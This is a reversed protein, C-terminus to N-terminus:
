ARDAMVNALEVRTHVNLKRFTNSLHYEVTKRSLFVAAAIEPNSKGSAALTAIALEQPTLEAPPTDPSAIRVGTARLENAARGQWLTAGATAFSDHAAQLLPRAERRRGSRRLREGYFLRTRALDLLYPSAELLEISRTFPEEYREGAALAGSSRLCAAMMWVSGFADAIPAFRDLLQQAADPDGTLAYAHVLDPVFAVACPDRVDSRLWREAVPELHAVAAAPEGHGLALLALMWHAVAEIAFDGATRAATAARLGASMAADHSGRWAYVGALAAYGLESKPEELLEGLRIAEAAAEEARALRGCRLELHAACNRNWIIRHYNGDARAQHLTADLSNRLEEFRELAMFDFAGMTPLDPHTSAALCRTAEERDGAIVHGFAAAGWARSGWDPGADPAHRELRRAIEVAGAADFANARRSLLIVLARVLRVDDVHELREAEHLVTLDLDADGTWERTRSLELLLDFRLLEDEALPLAEEILARARTANVGQLEARAAAFLRRARDARQPSLHAAAALARAAAALGGRALARDATEELLEALEEDPGDAAAALHWARRDLNADDDLVRALDEHARIREAAPANAYVLARLVPHRFLVSGQQVRVLGAEEAEQLAATTGRLESARRVTSADPEAAALLLERQVDPGVSALRHGFARELRQHGNTARPLEDALELPLELLALPNGAAAALVRNEDAAAIPEGRSRLVARAAEPALPALMLQPLAEFLPATGPRFAAIVGIQEARFRRIAFAIAKASAGDFWQVDDLLVLVPREEAVDVLLSYTGAGVALPDSSGQELALAAALAHAQVPALRPIRDVLPSLLEHLSAYPLESESEVGVSTLTYLDPAQEQAYALLATKGAGPEGVVALTRSVGRRAEELVGILRTQERDRGALM